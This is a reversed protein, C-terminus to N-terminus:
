ISLSSQRGTITVIKKSASNITFTGVYALSIEYLSNGTLTSFDSTNLIIVDSSGAPPAITLTYSTSSANCLCLRIECSYSNTGSPIAPLTITTNSQISARYEINWGSISNSVPYGYSLPMGSVKNLVYQVNAIRDTQSDSPTPVSMSSTDTTSVLHLLAPYVNTGSSADYTALLEGGQEPDKSYFNLNNNAQAFVIKNCGGITSTNSIDGVILYKCKGYQSSEPDDEFIILPEGQELPISDFDSNELVRRLKILTNRGYDPM